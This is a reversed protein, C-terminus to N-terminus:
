WDVRSVQGSGKKERGWVFSFFATQAALSVKGHWVIYATQRLDLFLSIMQNITSIFQSSSLLVFSTFNLPLCGSWLTAAMGSIFKSDHGFQAM